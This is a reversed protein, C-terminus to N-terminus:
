HYGRRDAQPRHRYLRHYRFSLNGTLSFVMLAKLDKLTNLKVRIQSYKLTKYDKHDTLSIHDITKSNM